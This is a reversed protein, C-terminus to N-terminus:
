LVTKNAGGASLCRLKEIASNDTTRRNTQRWSQPPPPFRLFAETAKQRKTQWPAEKPQCLDCISLYIQNFRELHGKELYSLDSKPRKVCKSINKGNIWFCNLLKERKQMSPFIDLFPVFSSGFYPNVQTARFTMKCPLFPWIQGRKVYKDINKLLVSTCWTAEYSVCKTMYLRMYTIYPRKTSRMAKSRPYCKFTM